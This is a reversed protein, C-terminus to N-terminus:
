QQNKGVVERYIRGLKENRAELSLDGDTVRERGGAGQRRRLEVVEELVVV